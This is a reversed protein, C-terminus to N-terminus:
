RDSDFFELDSLKFLDCSAVVASIDYEARYQSNRVSMEFATNVPAIETRPPLGHRAVIKTSKRGYGALKLMRKILTAAQQYHARLFYRIWPLADNEPHWSGEGVQALIAYRNVNKTLPKLIGFGTRFKKGPQENNPDDAVPPQRRAPM